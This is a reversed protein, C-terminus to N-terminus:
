VKNDYSVLIQYFRKDHAFTFLISQSPTIAYEIYFNMPYIKPRFLFIRFFIKLNILEKSNGLFLHRNLFIRLLQFYYETKKQDTNLQM